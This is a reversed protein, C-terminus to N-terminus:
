LGGPRRVQTPQGPQPPTPVIMGPVAVGVPVTPTATPPAVQPPATANPIAMGPPPNYLGQGAAPNVVQPQPFATFIPPRAAGTAEVPAGDNEDPPPPTYPPPQFVPMPPAAPGGAPVSAATTAARTAAMTPMVLIRDFKSLNPMAAPRPAAVYGSLPRMLIDLARDEPVDRLELTLPGGPIREM